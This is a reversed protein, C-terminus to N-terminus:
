KIPKPELHEFDHFTELKADYKAHGLVNVEGDKLLLQAWVSVDKNIGYQNLIKVSSEIFTGTFVKAQDLADKLTTVEGPLSKIYIMIYCYDSRDEVTKVEVYKGYLWIRAGSLAYIESTAAPPITKSKSCSISSLIVTLVIIVLYWKKM